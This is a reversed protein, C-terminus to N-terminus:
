METYPKIVNLCTEKKLTTKMFLVENPNKIFQCNRNKILNVNFVVAAFGEILSESSVEHLEEIM